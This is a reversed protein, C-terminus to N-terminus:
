LSRILKKCDRLLMPTLLMGQSKRMMEVSETRWREYSETGKSNRYQYLYEYNILSYYYLLLQRGPDESKVDFEGFVRDQIEDKGEPWISMDLEREECRLLMRIALEIGAVLGRKDRTPDLREVCAIGSRVCLEAARASAGSYMRRLTRSLQVCNSALLIALVHRHEKTLNIPLSELLHLARDAWHKVSGLLQPDATYQTDLKSRSFREVLRNASSAHSLHVLYYNIPRTATLDHKPIQLLYRSLLTHIQPVDGMMIVCGLNFVDPWTWQNLPGTLLDVVHRNIESVGDRGLLYRDAKEVFGSGLYDGASESIEQGIYEAIFGIDSTTSQIRAQQLTTLFNRATAMTISTDIDRLAPAVREISASFRSLEVRSPVDTQYREGLRTFLDSSEKLWVTDAFAVRLPVKLMSEIDGAMGYQETLVQLEKIAESEDGVYAVQQLGEAFSELYELSYLESTLQRPRAGFALSPIVMRLYMYETGRLISGRCDVGVPDADSAADFRPEDVVVSRQALPSTRCYDNLHSTHTYFRVYCDAAVASEEQLQILAAADAIANRSALIGEFATENEESRLECVDSVLSETSPYKSESYTLENALTALEPANEIKALIVEYGLASQFKPIISEARKSINDWSAIELIPLESTTLHHCMDLVSKLSIANNDRIRERVPALKALLNNLVENAQNETSEALHWKVKTGMRWSADSFEKARPGVKNAFETLHPWTIYFGNDDASLSILSGIVIRLRELGTFHRQASGSATKRQYEFPLLVWRLAVDADIFIRPKRPGGEADAELRKDHIAARFAQALRGLAAPDLHKEAM